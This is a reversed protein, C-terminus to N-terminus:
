PRCCTKTVASSRVLSMLRQKLNRKLKTIVQVGLSAMLEEFMKQSIYGLTLM